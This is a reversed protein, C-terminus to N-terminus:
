AHINRQKVKLQPLFKKEEKKKKAMFANAQIILM